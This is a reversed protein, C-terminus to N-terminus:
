FLEALTQQKQLVTKFAARDTLRNLYHRTLEPLDEELGILSALYLAYGVCIDAITFKNGCLYDANKLALEVSKIRSLFWKKYDDSVQEQRRELSEFRSYRLVIALPFTFTADSRYLWNLYEGYEPDGVAITFDSAQYKDALYHCIATSETLTIQGDIFTPVTGLPNISLYDSQKYRPPFDMNILEYDLQMEELAWLPRISRADRCHYLQM